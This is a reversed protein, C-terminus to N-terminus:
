APANRREILRAGVKRRTERAPHAQFLRAGSSMLKRLAPTRSHLNLAIEIKTELCHLFGESRQQQLLLQLLTLVSFRTQDYYKRGGHSLYVVNVPM